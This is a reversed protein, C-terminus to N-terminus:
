CTDMAGTSIDNIASKTASWFTDDTNMENALAMSAVQSYIDAREVYLQTKYFNAQETYLRNQKQLAQIKARIEEVQANILPNKEDESKIEEDLKGIKADKLALSAELEEIQANIIDIEFPLLLEHSAIEISVKLAEGTIAITATSLTKAIIANEEEKRLNHRDFSAELFDELKELPTNRNVSKQLIKSLVEEQIATITKM